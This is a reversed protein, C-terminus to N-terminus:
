ARSIKPVMILISIEVKNGSFTEQIPQTNPCSLLDRIRAKLSGKVTRKNLFPSEFVLIVRRGEPIEEKLEEDLEDALRGAPMVDSLM